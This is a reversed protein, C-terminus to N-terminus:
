TILRKCAAKSKGQSESYRRLHLSEGPDAREKTASRKLFGSRELRAAKKRWPQISRRKRKIVTTFRAHHRIGNMAECRFGM